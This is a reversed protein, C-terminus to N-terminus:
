ANVQSSPNNSTEPQISPSDWYPESGIRASLFDIFSRVKAPLYRNPLYCAYIYREVPIYESLVAQLNGNQLEKGITFTPLLAIGLGGLVPKPYRMTTMSACHEPYRCPSKAKLDKSAGIVKNVQFRTTWAIINSLIAQHLRYEGGVSTIRHPACNVVGTCAQTGSSQSRTRRNGYSSMTGEEVIDVPRDTITMDIRIEPYRSLFDALAPAVHLTGFAVSACVRLMGRPEAHLSTVVQEAHEAEELIRISHEAFTRGVETLSLHRTSRNLLRAGLDVELKAVAKSVASRSTDMRRAAEAFSGAEVVRAFTAILNLDQM